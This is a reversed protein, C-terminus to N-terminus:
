EGNETSMVGMKLFREIMYLQKKTLVITEDIGSQMDKKVIKVERASLKTVEISVHDNM